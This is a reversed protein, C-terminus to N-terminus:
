RWAPRAEIEALLQLYRSYRGADLRGAESAERVACGPESVHRCGRFRCEARWPGFDPYLGELEAASIGALDLRSFGPTDAVWGGAPLPLLEVVRTTHRGRGSRRSLSGSRVERGPVLAQLLRSKGAGSPGALVSVRGALAGALDDLGEGSVASVVLVGVGAQRWPGLVALAHTQSEPDLLDWKALCLTASCGQAAAELIVRDVLVPSFPPQEWAMVVVVHDCNAIPPRELLSRRALVEMIVGAGPRLLRCVVRDGAVPELLTDADRRGGSGGRARELGQDAGEPPEDALEEPMAWVALARERDRQSRWGPGARPLLRGRVRCSLEGQETVVSWIGNRGYLVVGILKPPQAGHKDGGM